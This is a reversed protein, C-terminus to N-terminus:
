PNREHGSDDRNQGHLRVEGGDALVHLFLFFHLLLLFSGCLRRLRVVSIKCVGQAIPAFFCVCIYIYMYVYIYIYMYIIPILGPYTLVWQIVKKLMWRRKGSEVHGCGTFDTQQIYGSSSSSGGLVGWPDFHHVKLMSLVGQVLLIGPSTHPVANTQSLFLIQQLCSMCDANVLCTQLKSMDKGFMHSLINTNKSQWINKAPWSEKPHVRYQEYWNKCAIYTYNHMYMHLVTIIHKIYIYMYWICTDYVHIMYMYWPCTYIYICLYVYIYICIYVYIYIYLYRYIYIIYIYISVYIYICMHIYIYVCTYIYIYVRMYRNIHIYIYISIHM